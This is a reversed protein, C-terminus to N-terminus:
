AASDEVIRRYAELDNYDAQSTPKFRNPSGIGTNYANWYYVAPIGARQDKGAANVWDRAVGWPKGSPSLKFKAQVFAVQARQDAQRAAAPAKKDQYTKFIQSKKDGGAAKIAKFALMAGGAALGMTMLDM